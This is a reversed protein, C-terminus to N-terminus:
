RAPTEVPREELARPWDAQLDARPRRGPQPNAELIDPPLASAGQSARISSRLGDAETRRGAQELSRILASAAEPPLNAVGAKQVGALALEPNGATVAANVFRGTVERDLNAAKDLWGRLISQAAVTQERDAMLEGISLFVADGPM